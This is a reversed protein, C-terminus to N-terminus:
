CTSHQHRCDRLLKNRAVQILRRPVVELLDTQELSIVVVPFLCHSCMRIDAQCCGQKCIQLFKGSYSVVTSSDDDNNGPATYTTGDRKLDNSTITTGNVELQLGGPSSVDSSIQNLVATQQSQSTIMEFNVIISGKRVTIYLFIANPYKQSLLIKIEVIFNAENGLVVADYDADGFTLELETLVEPDSSTNDQTFSVTINVPTEVSRREGVPANDEVRVTLFYEKTTKYNLAKDLFIV